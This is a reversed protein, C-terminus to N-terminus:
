GANVCRLGNWCQSEPCQCHYVLNISENWLHVFKGECVSEYNFNGQEIVVKGGYNVCKQPVQVQTFYLVSGILVSVLLILWILRKDM